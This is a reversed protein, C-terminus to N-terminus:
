KHLKINTCELYVLLYQLGDRVNMEWFVELKPSTRGHINVFQKIIILQSSFALRYSIACKFVSLVLFSGHPFKM